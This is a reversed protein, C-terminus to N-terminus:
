APPEEAADYTADVELSAGISRLEACEGSRATHVSWEGQANRRRVEIVREHHSVLVYEVLSPIQRYHEFKEGRDYEETSKSTVEVLLTPNVVTNVDEPDHARRGRVVSVDPYTGLGTASVRVRLDSSYVRCRGGALAVGLRTTVAAALAAHEPTGGAMAYIQGELYEHKITSDDEITLYERFSYRVCHVAQSMTALIARLLNRV